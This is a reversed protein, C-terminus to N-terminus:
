KVGKAEQRAAQITQLVQVVNAPQVKGPVVTRTGFPARNNALGEYLGDKHRETYLIHVKGTNSTEVKLRFTYVFYKPLGTTLAHGAVM